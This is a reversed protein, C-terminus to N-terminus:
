AGDDILRRVAHRVTASVSRDTKEALAALAAHLEVPIRVCMLKFNPDMEPM